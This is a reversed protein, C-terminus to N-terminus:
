MQHRVVKYEDGDRFYPCEKFHCQVLRSYDDEDMNVDCVYEEVDEDYAFYACYDCSASGAM